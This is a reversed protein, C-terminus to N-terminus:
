IRDRNGSSPSAGFIALAILLSIAWVILAGVLTFALGVSLALGADPGPQNRFMMIFGISGLILLLLGTLLAIRVFGVIGLDNRTYARHMWFVALAVFPAAWIVSAIAVNAVVTTL